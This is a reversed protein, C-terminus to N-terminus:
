AKRREYLIGPEQWMRVYGARELAQITAQDAINMWAANKGHAAALGRVQSLLDVRHGEACAELGIVWSWGQDEQEEWFTVLGRQEGWWFAQGAEALRQLLEPTPDAFAWDLGLLRGPATQRVFSAAQEAQDPLLPSFNSAPESLPEAWFYWVEGCRRYGRKECLHHVQVRRAHTMLRVVGQGHVDWWANIAADLRSGIGRGQVAPDVRFGELWWQDAALQTAKACGVCRGGYEAVLLMGKPDALWEPFVLGVYDHGDWISKTFAAVDAKDRPLAPRIVPRPDTFGARSPIPVAM